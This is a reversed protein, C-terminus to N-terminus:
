SPNIRYFTRRRRATFRSLGRAVSVEVLRVEGILHGENAMRHMHSILTVPKLGTESGIADALETADRAETADLRDWILQWALAVRGGKGGLRYAAGGPADGNPRTM